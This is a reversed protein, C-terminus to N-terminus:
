DNKKELEDLFKRIEDLEKKDSGGSGLAHMALKMASGEFFGDLLKRLVASRTSDKSLVASYVHQKGSKVRKLMGKETMIQMIKLTTTYGVDRVQNLKENIMRVTSPGEDWLIQLVEMESETPQKKKM